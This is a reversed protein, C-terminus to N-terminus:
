IWKHFTHRAKIFDLNFKQFLRVVERNSIQTYFEVCDYNLIVDEFVAKMLGIIAGRASAAVAMLGNNGMIKYNSILALDEYLKYTFFGVPHNSSDIAVFVRDKRSSNKVWEAYLSDSREEPLFPDLHFRDKSFAAKAIKTICSLDKKEYKRVKYIPRLLPIKHKERNFVFTVTTDMIKFGSKELIHMGSMDEIDIRCNLHTFHGKKCMDLIKALLINKIRVAGTYGGKSILYSLKGMKIKFIRSDWPLFDIIALGVIKKKDEAVLVLNKDGELSHSIQNILYEKLINKDLVGYTCFDHFEYSSVLDDIRNIKEKKLVNIKM